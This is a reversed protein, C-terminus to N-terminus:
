RQYILKKKIQNIEKNSIYYKRKGKYKDIPRFYDPLQWTFTILINGMITLNYSSTIPVINYHHNKMYEIINGLLMGVSKIGNNNEDYTYDKTKFWVKEAEWRFWRYIRLYDEKSGKEIMEEKVNDLNIWYYFIDMIKPMADKAELNGWNILACNWIVFLYNLMQQMIKISVEIEKTGYNVDNYNITEYSSIPHKNIGIVPNTEYPYDINPIILKDTLDDDHGLIWWKRQIDLYKQIPNIKYINIWSKELFKYNNKFYYIPIEQKDLIKELKIKNIYQVEVKILNKNNLRYKYLDIADKIIFKNNKNKRINLGHKNMYYLNLLQEKINKTFGIMYKNKQNDKYIYNTIYKDLLKKRFSINLISSKCDKKFFRYNTDNFLINCKVDKKLLSIEHTKFTNEWIGYLYKNNLNFKYINKYFNYIYSLKNKNILINNYFTISYKIKYQMKLIDKYFRLVYKNKIKEKFTNKWNDYMYINKHNNNSMNRFLNHVYIKNYNKNNYINKCYNEIFKFQNSSILEINQYRVICKNNKNKILSTDNIRYLNKYKNNKDICPIDDRNLNVMRFSKAEIEYRIKSVFKEKNYKIFNLTIKKILKQYQIHKIQNRIQGELLKKLLKIKCMSDGNIFQSIFKNNSNISINEEIIRILEKENNNNKIINCIFNHIQKILYSKEIYKINNYDSLLKNDNLKLVINFNRELRINKYKKEIYKISDYNSLINQMNEKSVKNDLKGICKYKGKDKNILNFNQANNLFIYNLSNEDIYINLKNLLLNSYKKNLNDQEVDDLYIDKKYKYIFTEFMYIFKHQLSLEDVGVYTFNHQLIPFAM